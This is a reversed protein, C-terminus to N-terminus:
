PMRKAREAMMADAMKYAREAVHEPKQSFWEGHGAWKLAESAFWDLMTMGLEPEMSWAANGTNPFAREDIM